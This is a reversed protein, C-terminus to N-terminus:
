TVPTVPVVTVPVATNPAIPTLPPLNTFFNKAIQQIDQPLGINAFNNLVYSQIAEAIEPPINLVPAANITQAASISPTPVSVTAAPPTTTATATTAISPTTPIIRNSVVVNRANAPNM